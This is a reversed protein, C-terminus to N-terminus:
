GVRFHYTGSQLTYVNATPARRVFAIGEASEAPFNSEIVPADEACPVFATATTNPPVTILWELGGGEPIRWHSEILGYISHLHAKAHTLGGGINPHLFIHKYGPKEPDVDIGAVQEYLWAGIAGYAYHNFSNMGPDQFGREPTWGDWREWITTAGQTVAYLWSPWGKQHLLNYAIDAHGEETLVHPVYHSSTFGTSIKMGRQKIDRIMQATVAPRQEPTLLGFRLALTCATQTDAMVLGGPTVFRTQWADRIKEFLARYTAADEERGLVSAMRSLLDASHAFFATGILDKQTRGQVNGLGGDLALWDGYGQWGPYGDYCRIYDKSTEQEFELFRRMAEYNDELVGTDGYCLYITWPCITGADAWAPGGDGPVVGTNPAISPFEGQPGQADRLDLLWKHFFGSIDRNFAATRVFVQADGTWGLREDRQPCDTPIDVYNGRQGWDINKQLQNILPESCEFDGTKPTESHLVIATIDLFEPLEPFGSIEVYRFGHFTFHTEYTEGHEEGKLTYHDTQRSGRLNDTYIGSSSHAPGGKLVEAFRFRVTLGAKGKVAFRIKGVLNQGFDVVLPHHKLDGVPVLPKLEETAKVTPGRSATLAIGPDPFVAVPDWDSDDFGAADWGPIELRADYSEGQQMDSELIPGFAYTWSSFTAANNNTTIIEGSGDDYTLVLQALLKPRDGYRQRGRWDVCGCYWGDGLIVGLANEGQQILGTVDYTQYQVRKAYDTWGPAFNDSGVRQGNIYPEYIGLATSYLRAKVVPRSVSFGRRLYPCPVATQPGGVLNAGIWEALWDSRNLLGMEWWSVTDAEVALDNEDWVTVTWYAREGSGLAPGGYPVLISQDSTVKGSDWLDAGGSQLGDETRDVRIQYATQRVGRKEAELKWSLRPHSQEIGLAEKYYECRLSTIRM